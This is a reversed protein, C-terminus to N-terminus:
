EGGGDGGRAGLETGSQICTDNQFHFFLRKKLMPSFNCTSSLSSSPVGTHRAVCFDSSQRCRVICVLAFHIRISTWNFRCNSCNWNLNYSGDATSKTTAQFNSFKLNLCRSSHACLNCCTWNLRGVSWGVSFFFVVCVFLHFFCRSFSRFDQKNRLSFIFQNGNNIAALLQSPQPPLSGVAM